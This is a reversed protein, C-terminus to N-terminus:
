PILTLNRPPVSERFLFTLDASSLLPFFQLPLFDCDHLNYFLLSTPVPGARSCVVPRPIGDLFFYYISATHNCVKITFMTILPPFQTSM